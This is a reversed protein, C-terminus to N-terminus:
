RAANRATRVHFADDPIAENGPFEQVMQRYLLQTSLIGVLAMDDRASPKAREQGVCKAALREVMRPDFCGAERVAQESLAERVYDWGEGDFFSASDPARYPQKARRRVADPVLDKAVLRLVRKEELARIKYKPPIRAAFEIVHHDLFPFRGEVGHSASVRDGQSCLLYGTMFTATEIYQAKSLPAWTDFGEPLAATFQAIADHGGIRDKFGRTLFRKIPATNGWRILHSYCPAQTDTLGKAFFRQWYTDTAGGASRRIYPYLRALLLPRLASEPDRAWFRRIKDEKFINYGGLMEDAGEGTVVVKIGCDRVLKSLHHLPVPATRLIPAETHWIVEPFARAIDDKGITISRHQTGLAAVMTDQHASEDYRADNFRVSFTNLPTDTHEKIVASTLSSDLGGSLYAAVPVDARMRLKTAKVLEDRLADVYEREDRVELASQEPFAHTWYREVRLGSPTAVLYHAPPLQLIGEFATRPPLPSWFTFTQDLGIPDIAASVYPTALLSKIESAFLLRSGPNAYYLPRIGVRDRAMFVSRENRNWICFAFQGNMHDLCRPGHEEYLHLIIETDSRTKFRHGRRELEPRLELYNYIEGNFVIWLSDDENSMPQAGGALDIISLRAHGLAAREDHYLGLEDPGRHRITWAMRKLVSPDVAPETGWDVIGCIGCM